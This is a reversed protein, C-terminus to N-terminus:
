AAERQAEQWDLVDQVVYGFLKPGLWIHRPATGARRWKRLTQVHVGLMAATEAEKLVRRSEILKPIEATM